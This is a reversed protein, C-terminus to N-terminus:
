VRHYVSFLETVSVFDLRLITFDNRYLLNQGVGENVIDLYLHATLSSSDPTTQPRGIGALKDLHYLLGIKIFQLRNKQGGPDQLLAPEPIEHAFVPNVTKAVAM